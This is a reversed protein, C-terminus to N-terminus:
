KEGETRAIAHKPVLVVAGAQFQRGGPLRADALLKVRYRKPTEGVVEVPIRSRGAWGDLLLVANGQESM